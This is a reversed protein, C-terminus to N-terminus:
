FTKFYRCLSSPISLRIDSLDFDLLKDSISFSIEGADSMSSYSMLNRSNLTKFSLELKEITMTKQNPCHWIKQYPKLKRDLAIDKDRTRCLVLIVLIRAEYGSHETLMVKTLDGTVEPWCEEVTITMGVVRFCYIFLRDLDESTVQIWHLSAWHMTTAKWPQPIVCASQGGKQTWKMVLAATEIYTPEETGITFNSSGGM